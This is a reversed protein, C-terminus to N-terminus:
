PVLEYYDPMLFRGLFRVTATGSGAAAKQVDAPVGYWFSVQRWYMNSDLELSSKLSISVILSRFASVDVSGTAGPQSFVYWRDTDALDGGVYTIIDNTASPPPPPPIIEILFPHAPTSSTPDQYVALSELLQFRNGTRANVGSQYAHWASLLMAAPAALARNYLVRQQTYFQVIGYGCALVVSFLVGAVILAEVLTFGRHRHPLLSAGSRPWSAVKGTKAGMVNKM